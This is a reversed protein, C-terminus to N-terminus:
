RVFQWRHPAMVEVERSLCSPLCSRRCSSHESASLIGQCTGGQRSGQSSLAAKCMGLLDIELGQFGRGVHGILTSVPSALRDGNTALNRAVLSIPTYERENAVLSTATEGIGNLEPH